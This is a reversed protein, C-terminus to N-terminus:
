RDKELRVLGTRRWSELLPSAVNDRRFLENKTAKLRAKFWEGGHAKRSVPNHAIRTVPAVSVSLHHKSKAQNTENTENTQSTESTQSGAHSNEVSNM